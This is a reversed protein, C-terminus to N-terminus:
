WDRDEDVFEEVRAAVAREIQTACVQYAASGGGVPDSVPADKDLLEVRPAATRSVDLVMEIHDRTM